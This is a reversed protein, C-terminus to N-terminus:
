VLYVTSASTVHQTVIKDPLRLANYGDCVKGDGTNGKVLNQPLLDAKSHIVKDILRVIM